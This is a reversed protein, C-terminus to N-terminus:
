APSSVDERWSWKKIKKKSIKKNSRMELLFLNWMNEKEFSSPDGLKLAIVLFYLSQRSGLAQLLYLSSGELAGLLMSWRSSICVDSIHIIFVLIRICTAILIVGGLAGLLMSWRSSICVDSIYIIFVWICVCTAILIVGGLAGLLMSWRSRICVDSIYISLYLSVSCDIIRGLAGLLM